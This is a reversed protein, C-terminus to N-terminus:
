VSATSRSVWAASSEIAFVPATVFARDKSGRPRGKVKARMEPDYIMGSNWAPKGTKLGSNWAPGTKKGKNWPTRGRKKARTEESEKRGKGGRANVNGKAAVSIKRRHEVSFTKGKSWSPKGSLEIRTKDEHCNACIHQINEPANMQRVSWGLLKAQRKPIIHDCQLHERWTGCKPCSGTQQKM